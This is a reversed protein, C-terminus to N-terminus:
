CVTVYDTHVPQYDHLYMIMVVILIIQCTTANYTNNQKTKIQHKVLIYSDKFSESSVELDAIITLHTYRYLPKPSNTPCFFCFNHFHTCSEKLFPKFILLFGLVFWKM